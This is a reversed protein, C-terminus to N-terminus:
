HSYDVKTTTIRLKDLEEDGLQGVNCRRGKQTPTTLQMITIIGIHSPRVSVGHGSLRFSLETLNDCPSRMSHGAQSV